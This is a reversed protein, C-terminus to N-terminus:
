EESTTEESKCSCVKALYNEYIMQLPPFFVIINFFLVLIQISAYVGFSKIPVISTFYNAFFAISTTSSTVM